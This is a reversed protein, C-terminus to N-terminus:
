ARWLQARTAMGILLEHFLVTKRGLHQLSIELIEMTHRCRRMPLLLTSRRDHRRNARVAVANM